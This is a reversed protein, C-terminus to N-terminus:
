LYDHYNDEEEVDPIIDPQVEEIEPEGHLRRYLLSKFEDVGNIVSHKNELWRSILVKSYGDNWFFYFTGDGLADIIVDNVNVHVPYGNESAFQVLDIIVAHMKM